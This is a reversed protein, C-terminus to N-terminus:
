KFLSHAVMSDLAQHLSRTREEQLSLIEWNDALAAPTILGGWSGCVSAHWWRSPSLAQVGTGEGVEHAACLLEPSGVRVCLFVSFLLSVVEIVWLRRRISRDHKQQAEMDYIRRWMEQAKSVGYAGLSSTRRLDTSSRFVEACATWRKSPSWPNGEDAGTAVGESPPIQVNLNRAAPSNGDRAPGAVPSHSDASKHGGPESADDRPTAEKGVAAVMSTISTSSASSIRRDREHREGNEKIIRELILRRKNSSPSQKLMPSGQVGPLLQRVHPSRQVCNECPAELSCMVTDKGVLQEDSKSKRLGGVPNTGSSRSSSCLNGLDSSSRCRRGHAAEIGDEHHQGAGIEQGACDAPSSAAPCPATKILREYHSRLTHVRMHEETLECVQFCVPCRHQSFFTSLSVCSNCFRHNCQLELPSCLVHQCIQCTFSASDDPPVRGTFQRYVANLLVRIDAIMGGFERSNYFTCRSLVRM